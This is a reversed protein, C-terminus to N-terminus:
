GTTFMYAKIATDSFTVLTGRLIGEGYESGPNLCLTRGIRESAKSEHIHGHLGILPQYTEIAERVAKSGVHIMNPQGAKLVPRFEDDLEMAIDLETGYPPAHLNFVARSPDDLESAVGEIISHLEEDTVDRPCKWPTMNAKGVSLMEMGNRLTVVREDPCIVYDSSHLVDMLEPLDDNGPSIYCAIGAKRLREEALRIWDELSERMLEELVKEARDESAGIERVEEPDGIYTYYGSRRAERIIEQLEEETTATRVNGHLKTVYGDKTKQILILGKGTIDGGLIIADAGYAKAANLFKRYVVESGHIDTAFFVRFKATREGESSTV